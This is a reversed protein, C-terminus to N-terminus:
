LIIILDDNVRFSFFSAFFVFSKECFLYGCQFTMFYLVLLIQVCVKLLSTLWISDFLTVSVCVNGTLCETEICWPGDAELRPACNSLFGMSKM